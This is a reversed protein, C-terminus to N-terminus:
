AAAVSARFKRMLRGRDLDAVRSRLCAGVRQDGPPSVYSTRLSTRLYLAEEPSAGTAGPPWVPGPVPLRSFVHADFAVGPSM